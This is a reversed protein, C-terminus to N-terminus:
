IMDGPIDVAHGCFECEAHITGDSNASFTWSPNECCYYHSNAKLWEVCKEQDIKM